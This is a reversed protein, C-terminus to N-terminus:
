FSATFQVRRNQARGERTNNDAIPAAEGFGISSLRSGSVGKEVLYAVVADARSQSLLRNKEDNGQSDTHGEVRVTLAPYEQMVAVVEDLIANSSSTITARGTNFNIGRLARSFVEVAKTPVAKKCGDPGVVGGVEPCKDDNDPVGDGDSDKPCGNADVIGGENPCRDAAGAVGDGDPDSPCGDATRAAVTPCKDDKDAVGDGDGDPCGGVTGAANPCNDDKDAVGDGDSDPCGGLTGAANPCNDDKDAIGDGDSDPCGNLTGAANPCSDERDIVGDGDSDPCGGYLIDGAAMPCADEDDIIGDSDSDACGKFEKLGPQNPCADKRDSIGDGDMDSPGDGGFNYQLTGIIRRGIQPFAPYTRYKSDFLNQASMNLSMGNEFKYGIGLDVLNKEDTDGSFQGLFVLFSPDHQFALNARFGYEPTYNAGLRYRNTPQSISTQETGGDTGVITPNFVNESTWSYNAFLAM